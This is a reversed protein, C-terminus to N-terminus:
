DKLGDLLEQGMDELIPEINDLDEIPVIKIGNAERKNDTIIMTKVNAVAIGMTEDIYIVSGWIRDQGDNTIKTLETKTNTPIDYQTGKNDVAAVTTQCIFDDTCSFWGEDYPKVKEDNSYLIDSSITLKDIHKNQKRLPHNIPLAIEVVQINNDVPYKERTHLQLAYLESPSSLDSAYLHKTRYLDATGQNQQNAIYRQRTNFAPLSLETFVEEATPNGMASRQSAYEYIVNNDYRPLLCMNEVIIGIDKVRETSSGVQEKCEFTTHHNSGPLIFHGVEHTTIIPTVQGLRSFTVTGLRNSHQHSWGIAMDKKGSEHIDCYGPDPIIMRQKAPFKRTIKESIQDKQFTGYCTDGNSDTGEPTIGVVEVQEVPLFNPSDPGLTYSITKLGSNIDPLKSIAAATDYDKVQDPPVVVAVMTEVDAGPKYMSNTDSLLGGLNYSKSQQYIRNGVAAVGGGALVLSAVTAVAGMSAPSFRSRSCYEHRAIPKEERINM